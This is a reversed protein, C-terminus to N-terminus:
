LVSLTVMADSEALFHFSDALLDPVASALPRKKRTSRNV